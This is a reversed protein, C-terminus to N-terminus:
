TGCQSVFLALQSAILAQEAGSLERRVAARAGGNTVAKDAICRRGPRSRKAVEILVENRVSLLSVATDFTEQTPAAATHSVRLSCRAPATTRSALRRDADDGGM